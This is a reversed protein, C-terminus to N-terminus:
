SYWIQPISPYYPWRDIIIPPSNKQGFLEHLQYYLDKAEEQSLSIRKGDKMELEIKIM